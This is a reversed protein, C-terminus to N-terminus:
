PQQEQTDRRERPREDHLQQILASRTRLDVAPDGAVEVVRMRFEHTESRLLDPRVLVGYLAMGLGAAASAVGLGAFVWRLAGEAFLAAGLCILAFLLCTSFLFPIAHNVTASRIAERFLRPNIL